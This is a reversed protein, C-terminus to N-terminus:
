ETEPPYGLALKEERIVEYLPARNPIEWVSASRLGEHVRRSSKSGYVLGHSPDGELPDKCVVQNLGRSIAATISVLKHEQRGLLCHSADCGHERLITEINISLDKDRFAGSSVRALGTDEDKVIQKLHIRRFLREGAPISPDDEYSLPM